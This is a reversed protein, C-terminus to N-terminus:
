AVAARFLDADHPADLFANCTVFDWVVLKRTKPTTNTDEDTNDQLGVELSLKQTGLNIFGKLAGHHGVFGFLPGCSRAGPFLYRGMKPAWPASWLGRGLHGQM